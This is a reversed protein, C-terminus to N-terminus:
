AAPDESAALLRAPPIDLVFGGADHFDPQPRPHHLAWYSTPGDTEEVVAALSMRLGKESLEDTLRRADVIADLRMGQAELSVSIEPPELVPDPQRRRRYATFAYAAWSGDPSFNFELYGGPTTAVFAECCTHRWLEDRRGAAPHRLWCLHEPAAEIRYTFRLHCEGDLCGGARLGGVVGPPSAPHPVLSVLKLEDDPMPACELGNRAQRRPHPQGPPCRLRVRVLPRRM